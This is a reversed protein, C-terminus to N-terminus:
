VKEFVIRYVVDEGTIHDKSPAGSITLKRGDLKFPRVLDSGISTPNWAADVHHVVSGGEVTYTATYAVMTDFLGVKEADTLVADSPSPRDKNFVLATMRGDAHYAIYGVPDPGLADTVDGTAVTERTWSLMRWTGLIPNGDPM